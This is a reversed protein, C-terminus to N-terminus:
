QVSTNGGLESRYGGAARKPQRFFSPAPLEFRRVPTATAHQNYIGVDMNGQVFNLERSHTRLTSAPLVDILHRARYMQTKINM